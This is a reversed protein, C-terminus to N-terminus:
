RAAASVRLAPVDAPGPDTRVAVPWARLRPRGVLLRERGVPLRPAKRSDAVDGRRRRRRGLARAGPVMSPPRPLAKGPGSVLLLHRRQGLASEGRARLASRLVVLM